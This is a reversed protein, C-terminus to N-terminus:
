VSVAQFNTRPTPPNNMSQAGAQSPQQSQEQTVSSAAVSSPQQVPGTQPTSSPLSSTSLSTSPQGPSSSTGLVSNFPSPISSSQNPLSPPQKSLSLSYTPTHFLISRHLVILTHIFM